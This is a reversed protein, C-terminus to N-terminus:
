QITNSTEAKAVLPVRPPEQAGQCIQGVTGEM